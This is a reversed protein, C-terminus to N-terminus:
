PTPTPTPTPAPPTIHIVGSLSAPDAGQIFDLIPQNMESGPMGVYWDMEPHSFGDCYIGGVPVNKDRLTRMFWWDSKMKAETGRFMNLVPPTYFKPARKVQKAPSAKQLKFPNPTFAQLIAKANSSDDGAEADIEIRYILNYVGDLLITRTIISNSYGEKKLYENAVSVLAALQAGSSHGMVTINSNDINYDDAHEYIWALARAVDEVHVPFKVAPSLEYNTSVFVYGHSTFFPAKFYVVPTDAKDGIEWAGGHIMFVVPLREDMALGEPVYIDLSVLNTSAGQNGEHLPGYQIDSYKIWGPSGAFVASGAFALGCGMVLLLRLQSTMGDAYPVVHAICSFENSGFAAIILKKLGLRGQAQLDALRYNLHYVGDLLITRSIVATNLGQRRLYENDTSILAALHAGASHGM